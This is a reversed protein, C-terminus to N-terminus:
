TLRVRHAELHLHARRWHGQRAGTALLKRAVSERSTAVGVGEEKKRVVAAAAAM